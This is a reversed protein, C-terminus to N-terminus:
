LVWFSSFPFFLQKHMVHQMKVDMVYCHTAHPLMPTSWHLLGTAQLSCRLECNTADHLMSGVHEVNHDSGVHYLLTDAKLKLEEEVFNVHNLESEGIAVLQTGDWPNFSIHHVSFSSADAVLVKGTSWKWIMISNEPDGTAVVM